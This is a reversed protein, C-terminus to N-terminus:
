FPCLTMKLWDEIRNLNIHDLKLHWLYTPNNSSIKRKLPLNQSNNLKTDHIEYIKPTILYFDDILKSSCIFSGNLKISINKNFLISYGQKFLDSVLILNRRISPVFLCDYLILIKNLSFFLEVVGVLM